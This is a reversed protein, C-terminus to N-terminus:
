KALYPIIFSALTIVTMIAGIVWGLTDKRGASSGSTKGQELEVCAIRREHDAIKISTGDKLDKIDGKVGKVQEEIRILTDHDDATRASTVKVAESAASAVVKTADAAASALRTAAVEAAQSIIRVAEKAAHEIDIKARISEEPVVM